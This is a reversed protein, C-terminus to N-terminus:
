AQVAQEIHDRPEQSPPARTEAYHQTAKSVEKTHRHTHHQNPRKTKQKEAMGLKLQYLTIMERRNSAASSAPRDSERRAPTKQNTTQKQKGPQKTNTNERNEQTTKPNHRSM